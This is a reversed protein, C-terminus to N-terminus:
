RNGGIVRATGCLPCYDPEYAPHQACRAPTPVAALHRRREATQANIPRIAM